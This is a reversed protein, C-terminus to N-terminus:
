SYESRCSVNEKTELTFHLSCILYILKFKIKLFNGTKGNDFINQLNKNIIILKDTGSFNVVYLSKIQQPQEEIKDIKTILTRDNTVTTYCQGQEKKVLITIHWIMPDNEHSNIREWNGCSLSFKKRSAFIGNRYFEESSIQLNQM